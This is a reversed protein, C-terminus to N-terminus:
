DNSNFYAKVKTQFNQRLPLSQRNLIEVENRYNDLLSPKTTIPNIFDNKNSNSERESKEGQKLAAYLNDESGLFM